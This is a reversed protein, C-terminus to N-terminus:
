AASVDVFIIADSTDAAWSRDLAHRRDITM